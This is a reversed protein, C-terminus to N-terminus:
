RLYMNPIPFTSCLPVFTIYFYLIILWVRHLHSSQIRWSPFPIEATISTFLLRLQWSSVRLSFRIMANRVLSFSLCWLSKDPQLNLIFLLHYKKMHCITVNLLQKGHLLPLHFNAQTGTDQYMPIINDSSVSYTTVYRALAAQSAGVKQKEWAPQQNSSPWLILHAKLQGMETMLQLSKLLSTFLIGWPRVDWQNGWWHVLPDLFCNDQLNVGEPSCKSGGPHTQELLAGSLDKLFVQMCTAAFDSNM